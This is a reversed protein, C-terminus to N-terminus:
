IASSDDPIKMKLYQRTIYISILIDSGSELIIMDIQSFLMNMYIFWDFWFYIKSVLNIEYFFMQRQSRRKIVVDYATNELNHTIWPTLVDRNLIRMYSNIFTYVVIISYKAYNDVVLGLIKFDYHPGFRYYVPDDFYKHFGGMLACILTIWVLLLRTTSRIDM